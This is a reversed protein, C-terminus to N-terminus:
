GRERRRAIWADLSWADRGRLLYLAIFGVWAAVAVSQNRNSPFGDEVVFPALLAGSIVMITVTHALLGLAYSVRGFLGLVIAAALAIEAGGMAYPMWAGLDVGHFYAYLKVAQGPALIKTVGWVMLFWGLGLRLVLVAAADTRSPGPSPGPSLGPSPPRTPAPTPSM